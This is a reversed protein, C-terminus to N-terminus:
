LEVEDKEDVGDAPWCQGLGRGPGPGPPRCSLLWASAEWTSSPVLPCPVVACLPCPGMGPDWSGPPLQVAKRGRCTGM